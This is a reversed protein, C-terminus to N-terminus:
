IAEFNQIVFDWNIHEFFQALYQPRGNRFDIYYAHEWIDCTMLPTISNDGLPCGANSYNRLSLAESAHDYVLFTWGSGFLSGAMSKFNAEFAELSGCCKTMAAVIGPHNLQQPQPSISQWYFTHNWIQAANNYLGTYAGSKVTGPASGAELCGTIVGTLDLGALEPAQNPLAQNLKTVYGAHHKGYHYDITEASIFPELADHAYPLAQLEFSM